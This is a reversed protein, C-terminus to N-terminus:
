EKVVYTKALKDHWAQKKDDWIVWFYGLLFVISSLFYGIYRIIATPYDIPKGNERVIKIKMLKKGVTQGHWNVWLLISYLAGVLFGFNELFREKFPLFRVEALVASFTMLVFSDIVAALLRIGFGAEKRKKAKAM